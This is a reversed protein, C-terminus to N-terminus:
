SNSHSGSWGLDAVAHTPASSWGLDQVAIVGAVAAAALIASVILARIRRSLSLEEGAPSLGGKFV